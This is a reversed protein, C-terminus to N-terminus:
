MAYLNLIGERIEESPCVELQRGQCRWAPFLMACQQRQVEKDHWAAYKSRVVWGRYFNMQDPVPGYVPACHRRCGGAFLIFKQYTRPKM